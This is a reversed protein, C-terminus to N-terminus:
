GASDIKYPFSRALLSEIASYVAGIIGADEGLTSLRVDAVRFPISKEILRRIPRMILEEAHPLACIEGGIIFADPNLVLMMNSFVVALQDAVGKVIRKAPRDGQAAADLVVAATLKEPDNRALERMATQTGRRMEKRAAERIGVLSACHELFGKNRVQYGLSETGVLSFGIEGASGDAGRLLHNDLVIGAGIGTSIEVFVMNKSKKGLGYNKEALASLKVINEIFVPVKYRRELIEKLNINELNRYLSASQVKGSESEIVAPVGVAIGMLKLRSHGRLRTRPLRGIAYDIQAVISREVDTKETFHFGKCRFLVTSSLDCVAIRIPEKILDIGIVMGAGANVVLKRVCKGNPLRTRATEAVYGEIILHSVVRSVAPASIKLNKSIQARHCPANERLYNFIISRNITNQLAANATAGVHITKM